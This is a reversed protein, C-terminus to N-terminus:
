KVPPGWSPQSDNGNGSSVVRVDSGDPAGTVIRQFNGVQRIWALRKGDFSWTPWYDSEEPGLNTPEGGALPVTYIHSGTPQSSDTNNVYNYALLRGDPSVAPSSNNGAPVLARQEKGDISTISLTTNERQGEQHVIYKGDPTWQPRTLRKGLTTIQRPEGSSSPVIFLETPTTPQNDAGAVFALSSNDPSWAPQGAFGQGSSVRRKNNGDTDMIFVQYDGGERKSQFAIRTGDPSWTPFISDAKADATLQEAKVVKNDPGIELVVVTSIGEVGAQILLRKGDPSWVNTGEIAYGTLVPEQSTGDPNVVYLEPTGGEVPRRVFSIRGDPHYSGAIQSPQPRLPSPLLDPAFLRLGGWILGLAVALTVALFLLKTSAARGEPKLRSTDPMYAGAQQRRDSGESALPPSSTETRAPRKSQKSSNTM